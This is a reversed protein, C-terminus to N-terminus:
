KKAEPEGLAIAKVFCSINTNEDVWNPTRFYIFNKPSMEELIASILAAVNDTIDMIKKCQFDEDIKSNTNKAVLDLIRLFLEKDNKTPIYTALREKAKEIKESRESPDDSFYNAIDSITIGHLYILPADSDELIMKKETELSEVLTILQPRTFVSSEISVRAVKKASMGSDKAFIALITEKKM